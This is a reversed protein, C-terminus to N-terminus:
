CVFAPAGSPGRTPKGPLLVCGRSGASGPVQPVHLMGTFLFKDGMRSLFGDRRLVWTDQSQASERARGIEEPENETTIATSPTVLLFRTEEGSRRM